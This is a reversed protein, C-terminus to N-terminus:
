FLIHDEPPLRHFILKFKLICKSFLQKEMLFFQGHELSWKEHNLSANTKADFRTKLSTEEEVTKTIKFCVPLFYFCVLIYYASLGLLKNVLLSCRNSKLTRPTLYSGAWMDVTVSFPEEAASIVAARIWHLPISLLPSLSGSLSGHRWSKLALGPLSLVEEHTCCHM